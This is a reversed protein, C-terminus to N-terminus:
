RPLRALYQTAEPHGPNHRLATEWAARADDYAGATAYVAGLNLWVDAQTSDVQLLTQYREVAQMTDGKMLLLNAINNQLELWQPQLSYAVTLAEIADDVRGASRLSNGYNVWLMPEDSNSEILNEWRTIKKQQELLTDARALVEASREDQGLGTLAQGLNYHAAYHWPMEETVRTLVDAAGDLDGRRLMQVGVVYAYDLNDPRLALGKRSYRLAQEFDGADEYVQGLRMYATPSTSDAAIAREYAWRASDAKGLDAYVRGLQTLYAATGAAGVEKRYLALAEEPDGRLYASNGLNLYVGPYEPDIELTKLYAAEAQGFQRMATLIRGRLFSVDALEPIYQAASDALVLAENYFGAEYTQQAELLFEVGQPDANRRAQETRSLPDTDGGCGAAVFIGGILLSALARSGASPIWEKLDM